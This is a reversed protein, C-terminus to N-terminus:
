RLFRRRHHWWVGHPVRWLALLLGAGLLLWAQTRTAVAKAQLASVLKPRNSKGTGDEAEVM